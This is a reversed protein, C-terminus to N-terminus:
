PGVLRNSDSGNPSRNGRPGLSRKPGCSRSARSRGPRMDLGGLASAFAFRLKSFSRAWASSPCSVLQLAPMLSTAIMVNAEIMTTTAIVHIAAV